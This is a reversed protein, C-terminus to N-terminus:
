TALRERNGAWNLQCFDIHNCQVSADLHIPIGAERCKEFFYFDESVGDDDRGQTWLFYPKKLKKFVEMDILLCGAGVVMDPHSFLSHQSEAVKALVEPNVATYRADGSKANEIWVGPVGHKSGYIGCVIPLQWQWLRTIAEPHMTVDSDLFLIHSAGMQQAQNVLDCRARDIPLGRNSIINFPVPCQLVKFHVAWDFTVLGVHPIAILLMKTPSPQAEWVGIGPM